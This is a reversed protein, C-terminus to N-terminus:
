ESGYGVYFQINRPIPCKGGRQVYAHPTEWTHSLLFSNGVDGTIDKLVSFTSLSRM